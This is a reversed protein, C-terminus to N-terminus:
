MLIHKLGLSKQVSPRQVEGEIRLEASGCINGQQSFVTFFKNSYVLVPAQQRSPIISNAWQGTRYFYKIM